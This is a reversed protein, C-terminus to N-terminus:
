NCSVGPPWMPFGGNDDGPMGPGSGGKSCCDDPADDDDGGNDDDDGCSGPRLSFFARGELETSMAVFRGCDPDSHLQHSGSPIGFRNGVPVPGIALAVVPFDITCEAWGGVPIDRPGNVALSTEEDTGISLASVTGSAPDIVARF